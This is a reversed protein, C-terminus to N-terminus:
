KRLERKLIKGSATKPISEIFVVESPSKFEGLEKKAFDIVEEASMKQGTKLVVFSKIIEGYFKDPKGVSAAEVIKKNKVLVEDILNPSINVGGKIILDKKRGVYYYLGKKDKRGLDGTCFYGNKFCSKYLRQNKFYGMFFGRTKVAIEGTEGIKVENGSDDLLKIKVCDLPRGVSGPKWKETFPYDSLLHGAESLGYLNAIRLRFKKEFSKKVEESLPASGCAIYKLALSDRRYNPYSTNLIMYVVTPVAQVYNVKYKKVINWFNKRIKIFNEAFVFTGGVYLVSLVSHHMISTHGMPLMGFHISQSSHEFEKCMLAVVNVVGKNSFFIGKPQDTTGSSYYMCVPDSDSLVEEFDGDSYKKLMEELSNKGEFEIFYLNTGTILTRARGKEALIIKPKIYDINAQLEKDGVSSPIPNIVAGRRITAFYMILFEVSNRVCLLVIDGMGVGKGKLFRAASNVTKDFDGYNYSKGLIVDKIFLKGGSHKSWYSLAESFNKFNVTGDGCTKFKNKNIFVTIKKRIIEVFKKASDAEMTEEIDFTIHFEKELASILRMHNFSDWDKFDAQKKNFNFNKKDVGKIVEFFIKKFKKKIKKDM